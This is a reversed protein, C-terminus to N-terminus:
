SKLSYRNMMMKEFIKRPLYRKLSTGFKQFPRAVVYKSYLKVSDVLKEILLAVDMAEIGTGVETNIIQEAVSIEPQYHSNAPIYSVRNSTIDTRISGPQVTCVQINFKAVETRLAETLGEVAFKSASYISRYPLGMLGAISSINIIKGSRQERMYPLVAQSVRLVGGFNTEMVTRINSEPAEEFSSIMGIGANNILVDIKGERDIIDSITKEISLRDNVDLQVWSFVQGNQNPNRSSGYVKHGCHSLHTAISEGIGGSAGTVLIIRSPSNKM